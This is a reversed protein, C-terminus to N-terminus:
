PNKTSEAINWIYHKNKAIYYDYIGLFRVYLELLIAILIKYNNNFLFKIDKLIYKLIKFNSTTSSKKNFKKKLEIHGAYIRRRQKVYDKLNTPFKNYVFANKCYVAKFGKNIILTAILEEDVASNPLEKIVNRFAILEGFKPDELSIEHHLKYIFYGLFGMFTSKDNLTEIHSCTVGVTNDKFPEILEDLANEKPINDASELILISSKAVKLFKNIANIKGKRTDTIIIKIKKNKESYEKIINNTKDTSGDSVIIIENINVNKSKYNLLIDLLIDLLRGINKEENYACIGISVDFM